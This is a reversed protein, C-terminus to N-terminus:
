YKDVTSYGNKKFFKKGCRPCQHNETWSSSTHVSPREEEREVYITTEGDTYKDTSTSTYTGLTSSHRKDAVVTARPDCLVGCEPCICDPWNIASIYTAQPFVTDLYSDASPGYNLLTFLIVIPYTVLANLCVKSVFISVACVVLGVGVAIALRIRGKKLYDNEEFRKKLITLIEDKTKGIPDCFYWRQVHGEISPHGTLTKKQLFRSETLLYQRIAFDRGDFLFRWKCGTPALPVHSRNQVVLM